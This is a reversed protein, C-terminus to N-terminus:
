EARRKRRLLGFLVGIWPSAALGGLLSVLSLSARAQALAADRLLRAEIEQTSPRDRLAALILLLALLADIALLLAARGLPTLAPELALWALLHMMALAACLFVAGVAGLALRLALRRSFLGLRVREAELSANALRLIRM